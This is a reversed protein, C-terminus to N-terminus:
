WFLIEMKQHKILKEGEYVRLEKKKGDVTYKYNGNYFNVENNRGNNSDDNYLIISPKDKMTKNSNWAAYRLSGDATRDIRVIFDKTKGLAYLIDYKRISQHLWFGGDSGKHTFHNGDFRYVIYKDAGRLNKNILPVYLTKDAKNYLFFGGNPNSSFWSDYKVSSIVSQYHKKVKFANEPVYKGDKKTYASVSYIGHNLNESLYITKGNNTTVTGVLRGPLNSQAIANTCIGMCSLVLAIISLFLTKQKM